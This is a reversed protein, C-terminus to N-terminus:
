IVATAQMRGSFLKAQPDRAAAAVVQAKNTAVIPAFTLSAAGAMSVAAALLTSVVAFTGIGRYAMM